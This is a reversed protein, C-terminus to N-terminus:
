AVGDWHDWWDHHRRAAARLLLWLGLYMGTELVVFAGLALCFRQLDNM